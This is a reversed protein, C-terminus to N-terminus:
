DWQAAFLVSITNCQVFLFFATLTIIYPGTLETKVAQLTGPSNNKERSEQRESGRHELM